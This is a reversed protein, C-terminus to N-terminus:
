GPTPATKLEPHEKYVEEIVSLDFLKDSTITIGGIGLTNISKQLLDPTITFIGNAM